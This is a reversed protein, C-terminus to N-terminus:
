YEIDLNFLNKLTNINPNKNAMESFKDKGSLYKKEKQPKDSLILEVTLKFNKLETRLFDILETLLPSIYDVQITNEVEIGIKDEAIILPENKIMAQFFTELGKEKLTFAFQKWILNLHEKSYSETAINEQSEKGKKNKENEIIKKISLHEYTIKSNPESVIKL